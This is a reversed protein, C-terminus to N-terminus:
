SIIGRGDRNECLEGNGWKVEGENWEVLWEIGIGRCLAENSLNFLPYLERQLLCVISGRDNKMKVWYPHTIEIVEYIKRSTFGFTTSDYNCIVKNGRRVYKRM